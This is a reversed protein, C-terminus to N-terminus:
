RVSVGAQELAGRVREIALLMNRAEGDGAANSRVDVWGIRKCLEALAYAQEAPLDVVLDVPPAAKVRM